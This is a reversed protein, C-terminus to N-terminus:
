ESTISRTVFPLPTMGENLPRSSSVWIWFTALYTEETAPVYAVRAQKGVARRNLPSLAVRTSQESAGGIAPSALKPLLPETPSGHPEGVDLPSPPIQVRSAGKLM